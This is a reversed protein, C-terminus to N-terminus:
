QDIYYLNINREQRRGSTKCFQVLRNRTSNCLLVHTHLVTMLLIQALISKKTSTYSEWLQSGTIRATTCCKFIFTYLTLPSSIGGLQFKKGFLHIGIDRSWTYPIGYIQAYCSTLNNLLYKYYYKTQSNWVNTHSKKGYSNKAGLVCVNESSMYQVPVMAYMRRCAVHLKVKTSALSWPFTM